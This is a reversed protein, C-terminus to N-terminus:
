LYHPVGTNHVPELIKLHFPKATSSFHAGYDIKFLIFAKYFKLLIGTLSGM